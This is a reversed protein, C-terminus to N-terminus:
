DIAEIDVDRSTGSALLSRHAFGLADVDGGSARSTTVGQPGAPGVERLAENIAALSAGHCRVFRWPMTAGRADMRGVLEQGTFCGKTFSITRAVFTAGFSHPALALTLEREWPWGEAFLDDVDTLPPDVAGPQVELTCRVRILFRRLRAEVTDSLASPVLLEYHDGEGRVWLTSVVTGQPDLVLSWQPDSTARLDQSLQGDLFNLADPGTAVITGWELAESM